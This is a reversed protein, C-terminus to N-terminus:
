DADPMSAIQERVKRMQKRSRRSTLPFRPAPSAPHTLSTSPYHGFNFLPELSPTRPCAPLLCVFLAVGTRRAVM